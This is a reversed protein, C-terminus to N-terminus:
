PARHGRIRVDNERRTIGIHDLHELLAVIYKRSSGFMDRTQIVDISANEDIHNLIATIMAEYTESAFIVDPHVQM